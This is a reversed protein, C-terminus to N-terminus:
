ATSRMSLRSRLMEEAEDRVKGIEEFDPNVGSFADELTRLIAGDLADLRDVRHRFADFLEVAQDRQGLRAYAEVELLSAMLSEALRGVRDFRDAAKQFHRAAEPYREARYLLGALNHHLMAEIAPGAESSVRRFARAYEWTAEDLRTLKVLFYAMNGLTAAYSSWLALRAFVPLARRCAQVAEEDRDLASLGLAIAAECRAAYDEQNFARFTAWARRALYIGESPLGSFTRRQSEQLEVLAFNFDNGHGDAFGRWAEVLHRGGKEFEGTWNCASGALLHANASLDRIPVAFEALAEDSDDGQAVRRPTAVLQLALEALTQSQAPGRAIQLGSEQLAYLLGYRDRCSGLELANLARALTTEDGRSAELVRDCVSRAAQSAAAALSLPNRGSPYYFTESAPVDSPRRAFPDNEALEGELEAQPVEGAGAFLEKLEEDLRETEQLERRCASCRELHREARRKELDDLDGAVFRLLTFEDLHVDGTLRSM